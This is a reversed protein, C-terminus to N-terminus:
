ILLPVNVPKLLKKKQIYVLHFGAFVSVPVAEYPGRGARPRGQRKYVDLHTYSVPVTIAAVTGLGFVSIDM